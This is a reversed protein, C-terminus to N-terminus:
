RYRALCTLATAGDAACHSRQLQALCAAALQDMLWVQPPPHSHFPPVTLASNSHTLAM